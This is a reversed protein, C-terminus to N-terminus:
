KIFDTKGAKITMENWTDKRSKRKYIARTMLTVLRNYKRNFQATLDTKSGTEKTKTTM